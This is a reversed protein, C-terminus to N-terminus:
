GSGSGSSPSSRLQGDYVIDSIPAAITHHMRYQERLRLPIAGTKMLGEMLSINGQERSPNDGNKVIPPLQDPDGIIVIRRLGGQAAARLIPSIATVEGIQSGEDSLVFNGKYDDALLTNANGLTTLIGKAQAVNAQQLARLRKEGAQMRGVVVSSERRMLKALHRALLYLGLIHSEDKFTNVFQSGTQTLHELRARIKYEVRANRGINDAPIPRDEKPLGEGLTLAEVAAASLSEATKSSPGAEDGVSLLATLLLQDKFFGRAQLCKFLEGTDFDDSVSEASATWLHYIDAPTNSGKMDCVKKALVDLAANSGTAVWYKEGLKEAIEVLSECACIQWIWSARHRHHDYPHLCAERGPSAGAQPRSHYLVPEVGEELESESLASLEGEFARQILM